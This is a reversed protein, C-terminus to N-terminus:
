SEEKRLAALRRELKYVKDKLAQREVSAKNCLEIIARLHEMSHAAWEDSQSLFIPEEKGTTDLPRPEMNLSSMASLAEHIAGTIVDEYDTRPTSM